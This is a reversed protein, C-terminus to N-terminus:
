ALLDGVVKRRERLYWAGKWSTNIGLDDVKKQVMPPQHSMDIKTGQTWSCAGKLEGM